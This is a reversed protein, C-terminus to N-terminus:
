KKYYKKYNFTHVYKNNLYFLQINYFYYYYIILKKKITNISQRLLILLLKM